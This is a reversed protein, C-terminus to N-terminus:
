LIFKTGVAKYTNIVNKSSKLLNSRLNRIKRSYNKCSKKAKQIKQKRTIRRLTKYKRTLDQIAERLDHAELPPPSSSSSATPSQPSNVIRSM